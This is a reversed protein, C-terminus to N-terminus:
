RNEWDGSNIVNNEDRVNDLIYMTAPGHETEIETTNYFNKPNDKGYHGELYDLGKLCEESEIEFLDGVIATEGNLTVAPFSARKGHMTFKPETCIKGVHKAEGRLIYPEIRGRYNGHNLRLTGYCFVLKGKKM